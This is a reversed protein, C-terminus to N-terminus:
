FGLQHQQKRWELSLESVRTLQHVTLEPPQKGKLIAETIAPALYALRLIRSLDSVDVLVSEPKTRLVEAVNSRLARLDHALSADHLAVARAPGAGREAVTVPVEVDDPLRRHWGRTDAARHHSQLQIDIRVQSWHPV